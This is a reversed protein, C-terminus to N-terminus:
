LILFVEHRYDPVGCKASQLCKCSKSQFVAFRGRLPPLFRNATDDDVQAFAINFTEGAGNTVVYVNVNNASNTTYPCRCEHWFIRQNLM